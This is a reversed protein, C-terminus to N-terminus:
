KELGGRMQSMFSVQREYSAFGDDSSGFPEERNLEILDYWETMMLVIPDNGEGTDQDYTDYKEIIRDARIEDICDTFSLRSDKNKEEEYKAYVQM